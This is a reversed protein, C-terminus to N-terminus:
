IGYMIVYLCLKNVQKVQGFTVKGGEGLDPDTAVLRLIESGIATNESITVNYRIQEFLPRNDNEDL